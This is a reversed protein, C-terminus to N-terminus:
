STLTLVYPNNTALVTLDTVLMELMGYVCGM